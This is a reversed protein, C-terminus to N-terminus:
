KKPPSEGTAKGMLHVQHLTYDGEYVTAMIQDGPTARALIAPDEIKYNMTMADMWGEIKESHVKLSKATKDVAEVTGHFAHAKKEAAADALSVATLLAMACLVSIPRWVRNM